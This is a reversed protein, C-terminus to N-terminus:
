RNKYTSSDSRTSGFHRKDAVNLTASVNPATTLSEQVSQCIVEQTADNDDIEPIVEQTADNNPLVELIDVTWDRRPLPPFEVEDFWDYVQTKPPLIVEEVSGLINTEFNSVVKDVDSIIPRLYGLKRIKKGHIRTRLLLIKKYKALAMNLLPGRDEPALLSTMERIKEYLLDSKMDEARLTVELLKLAAEKLVEDVWYRSGKALDEPLGTQQSFRLIFGKPLLKNNWCVKLFHQKATVQALSVISKLFLSKQKIADVLLM